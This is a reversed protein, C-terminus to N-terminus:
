EAYTLADACVELITRIYVSNANSLCLFTTNIDKREKQARVGRKMAPHQPHACFM